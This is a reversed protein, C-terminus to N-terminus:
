ALQRPQGPHSETGNAIAGLMNENSSLKYVQRGADERTGGGKYQVAELIHQKFPLTTTTTM